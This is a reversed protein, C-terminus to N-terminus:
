GAPTVWETKELELTPSFVAIPFPEENDSSWFHDPVTAFQFAINLRGDGSLTIGKPTLTVTQCEQLPHPPTLIREKTAAGLEDWRSLFQRWLAAQTESPGDGCGNLNVVQGSPLAPQAYWTKFHPLIEYDGFAPHRGKVRVEQRKRNASEFLSLTALMMGFLAAGQLIVRGANLASIEYFSESLPMKIAYMGKGFLWALLCVGVGLICVTLFGCVFVVLWGRMTPQEFAGAKYPQSVKM